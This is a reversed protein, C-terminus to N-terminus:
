KRYRLRRRITVLRTKATQPLIRSALSSISPMGVTWRDQPRRVYIGLHTGLREHDPRQTTYFYSVLSRRVRDPPCMVADPLGHLTHANSEFVVLTNFTPLIRAKAGAMDEPWLELHGGYEDPWDRNLYLLANIRRELGLRTNSLFDRHILAFGGRPTEHLGGGMHHPDPMLGQIRTLAELFDMFASSDLQSMVCRTAAGLSAVDSAERKVVRQNMTTQRPASGEADCEANVADLLPDPFLGNVVVHPFPSAARYGDRLEDAMQLMRTREFAFDLLAPESTM